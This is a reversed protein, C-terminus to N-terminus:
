FLLVFVLLAGLAITLFARAPVKTVEIMIRTLLYSLFWCVALRVLDGKGPSVREWAFHLLIFNTIYLALNLSRIVWPREFPLPPRETTTPATKKIRSM